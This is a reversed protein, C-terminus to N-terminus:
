HHFRMYLMIVKEKSLNILELSTKIVEDDNIKKM